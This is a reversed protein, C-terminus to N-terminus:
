EGMGRITGLLYAMTRRPNDPSKGGVIRAARRVREVGVESELRILEKIGALNDDEYVMAAWERARAAADGHRAALEALARDVEAPDHLANPVYLTPARPGAGPPPLSSYNAEILGRRRLETAGRSLIWVSVGYRRALAKQNVSWRPRLRSNRSERLSVLFFTKAALSLRRPWGWAAYGDPLAVTSTSRLLTRVEHTDERWEVVGYRERL